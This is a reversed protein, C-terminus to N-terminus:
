FLKVLCIVYDTIMAAIIVFNAATIFIKPIRGTFKILNEWIFIMFCTILVGWILAFKLCILGCLNFQQVSYDWLLVNFYYKSVFGVTLEAFTATLCAFIYYLFVAATKETVLRKDSYNEYYVFLRKRFTKPTGLLYYTGVLSFGYIPCFPLTLFGRDVNAGYFILFFMKEVTWGLFSILIFIFTISKFNINKATVMFFTHEILLM